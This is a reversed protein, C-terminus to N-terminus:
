GGPLYRCWGNVAITDVDDHLDNLAVHQAIHLSIAPVLRRLFNDADKKAPPRKSDARKVVVDTIFPVRQNIQLLRENADYFTGWPFNSPMPLSLTGLALQFHREIGNSTHTTYEKYATRIPALQQDSQQEYNRKAVNFETTLSNQMERYALRESALQIDMLDRAEEAKRKQEAFENQLQNAAEQLKWGQSLEFTFLKRLRTLFKRGASDTVIKTDPRPSEVRPYEPPAPPDFSLIPASCPFTNTNMCQTYISRLEHAKPVLLNDVTTVWPGPDPGDGFGESNRPFFDDFPFSFRVERFTMYSPRIFKPRYANADAVFDRLITVAKRLAALEPANKSVIRIAEETRRKDELKKQERQRKAEVREREAELKQQNASDIIWGVLAIGAIAILAILALTTM